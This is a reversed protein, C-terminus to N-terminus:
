AHRRSFYWLHELLLMNWRRGRGAGNASGIDPVTVYLHGGPKLVRAPHLAVDRCGPLHEFVDFATIFISRGM